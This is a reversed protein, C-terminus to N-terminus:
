ETYTINFSKISVYAKAWDGYSLYQWYYSDTDVDLTIRVYRAPISAYLVFWPTSNWGETIDVSKHDNTSGLGTWKQLDTSIEVYANKMVYSSITFGSVNYNKGLDIVCTAKDKKEKLGFYRNWSDEDFLNSFTSEDFNDSSVLKWENAATSLDMQTGLLETADDNICSEAYTLHIYTVAADSSPRMGNDASKIVVPALYGNPDNLNAAMKDNISATITDLSQVAGSKITATYSSLTIAGDPVPVYNTGNAENYKEVLSNDIALTVHTDSTAPSTAKVIIESKLSTIIGVPTNVVTGNSVGRANSFYARTYSFGDVDYKEDDGCSTMASLSLLALVALFIINKLKM